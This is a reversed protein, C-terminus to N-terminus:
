LCVAVSFNDGGVHRVSVQNSVDQGDDMVFRYHSLLSDERHVLGENRQKGGWAMMLGGAISILGPNLQIHQILTLGSFRDYYIVEPGFIAIGMGLAAVASGIYILLRGYFVQDGARGELHAAYAESFGPVNYSQEALKLDIQGILCEEAGRDM